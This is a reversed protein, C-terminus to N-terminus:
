LEGDSFTPPRTGWWIAGMGAIPQTHVTRTVRHEELHTKFVFTFLCFSDFKYRSFNPIFEASLLFVEKPLDPM